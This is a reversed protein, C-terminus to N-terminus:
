HDTPEQLDGTGFDIVEIGREEVRRAAENLRVFPYTTQRELIPSVPM